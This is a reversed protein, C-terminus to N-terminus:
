DKGQAKQVHRTRVVTALLPAEGAMLAPSRLGMGVSIPSLSSFWAYFNHFELTEKKMTLMSLPKVQPRTSDGVVVVIVVVTDCCYPSRLWVLKTLMQDSVPDCRANM